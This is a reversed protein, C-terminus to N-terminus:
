QLLRKWDFGTVNDYYSLREDDSINKRGDNDIYFSQGMDQDVQFIYKLRNNKLKYFPLSTTGSFPKFEPSVLVANYRESYRYSGYGYTEDALIVKKKDLVFTWTNYFPADANSQILLEPVKDANLDTIVYELSKKDWSGMFDSYKKSSLFKKWISTTKNVNTVNKKVTVSVIKKINKNNKSIVTIKTNGKSKGMVVGKKTVFAVKKDSSKYIVSKSANKPMVKKVKIVAKEGAHLTLKAKNLIFKKTKMSAKIINPQVLMVLSLLGTVLMVSTLLRFKKNIKYMSKGGCFTIDEIAIIESYKKFKDISQEVIFITLEALLYSTM